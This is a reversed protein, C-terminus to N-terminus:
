VGTPPTGSGGGTSDGSTGGTNDGSTGSTDPTTTTPDLPKVPDSTPPVNTTDSGTGSSPQDISPVVQPVDAPPADGTTPTPVDQKDGTSVPPTTTPDVTKDDGM